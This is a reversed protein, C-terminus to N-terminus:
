RRLMRGMISPWAKLLGVVEARCPGRLRVTIQWDPSTRIEAKPLEPLHVHPFDKGSRRNRNRSMSGQSGPHM